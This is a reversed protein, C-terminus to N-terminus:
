FCFVHFIKVPHKGSARYRRRIRKMMRKQRKEPLGAHMLLLEAFSVESIIGIPNSEPDRREFEIKLIDRHLDHQLLFISYILFFIKFLYKFNWFHILILSINM